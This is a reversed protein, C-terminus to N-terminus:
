QSQFWSSYIRHIVEIANSLLKLVKREKNMPTWWPDPSHSSGGPTLARDDEAEEGIEQSIVNILQSSIHCSRATKYHQIGFGTDVLSTKTWYLIKDKLFQYLNKLLQKSSEKKKLWFCYYKNHHLWYLCNKRQLNYRHM